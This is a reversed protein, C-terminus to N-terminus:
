GTAGDTYNYGCEICAVCDNGTSEGWGQAGVDTANDAIADARSIFPEIYHHECLTAEGM